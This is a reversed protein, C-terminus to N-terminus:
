KLNKMIEEQMSTKLTLISEIRNIIEIPAPQSSSTTLLEAVRQMNKFDQATDVTFRAWYNSELDPDIPICRRTFIQPTTYIFNTVHELYHKETTREAATQL